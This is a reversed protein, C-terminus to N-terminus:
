SWRFWWTSGPLISPPLIIPATMLIISVPPLSFGLVVMLLITALLVWRCGDGRDAVSQNIHLLEDTHIPAVHQHDADCRRDRINVM